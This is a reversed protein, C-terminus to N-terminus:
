IRTAIRIARSAGWSTFTAPGEHRVAYTHRARHRDARGSQEFSPVSWASCRIRQSPPQTRSAHLFSPKPCQRDYHAYILM